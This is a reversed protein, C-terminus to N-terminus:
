FIRSFIRSFIKPIKGARFFKVLNVYNKPDAPFLKLSKKLCKLAILYKGKKFFIFIFFFQFFFFFFKKGRSKMMQLDFGLHWTVVNNKSFKELIKWFKNAEGVYHEVLVSGAKNEPFLLKQGEPDEDKEKNVGSSSSNIAAAAAAAAAKKKKKGQSDADEAKAPLVPPEAALKVYLQVLLQASRVYHKHSHWEDAARMSNAYARLTLKRTCYSHFDLQDELEDLYIKEITHLTKLAPGPQQTRLYAESIELLYSLAQMDILNHLPAEGEQPSPFLTLSFESSFEM